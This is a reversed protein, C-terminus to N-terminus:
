ASRRTSALHESGWRQVAGPTLLRSPTRWVSRHFHMIIFRAQTGRLAKNRSDRCVPGKNLNLTQLAMSRCCANLKGM